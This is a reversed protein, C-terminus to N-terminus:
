KAVARKSSSKSRSHSQGNKEESKEQDKEEPEADSYEKIGSLDFMVKEDVMCLFDPEFPIDFEEKTVLAGTIMACHYLNLTDEYSLYDDPKLSYYDIGTNRKFLVYTYMTFAVPRDVGGLRVRRVEVTQGHFDIVEVKSM